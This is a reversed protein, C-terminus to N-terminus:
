CQIGREQFNKLDVRLDRKVRALYNCYGQRSIPRGAATSEEALTTLRNTDFVYKILREMREPDLNYHKNVIDRIAIKDYESLKTQPQQHFYVDDISITSEKVKKNEVIDRLNDSSVIFRLVKATGYKKHHHYERIVTYMAKQIGTKAYTMMTARSSDYNPLIGWAKLLAAQVCDEHIYLPVGWTRCVRKAWKVLFPRYTKVFANMAAEQEQRTM